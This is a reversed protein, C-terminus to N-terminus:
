SSCARQADRLAEASRGLAVLADMRLLYPVPDDKKLECLRALYPLVETRLAGTKILCETLTELTEVDGPDRDLAQKLGPLAEKYKRQEALRLAEQREASRSWARVLWLASASGLALLCAVAIIKRNRM